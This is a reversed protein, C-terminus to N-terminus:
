QRAKEAARISVLSADENHLAEAIDGQYTRIQKLPGPDTAVIPARPPEPAPEPVNLAVPPAVPAVVPPIVPASPVVPAADQQPDLMDPITSAKSLDQQSSNEPPM